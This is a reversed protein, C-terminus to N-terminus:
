NELTLVYFTILAGAPREMTTKEGIFPPKKKKRKWKKLRERFAKRPESNSLIEAAYWSTQIVCLKPCMQTLSQWCLFSLTSPARADCNLILDHMANKDVIRLCGATSANCSDGSNRRAPECTKLITRVVAFVINRTSEEARRMTPNGNCSLIM